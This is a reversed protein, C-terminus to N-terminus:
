LVFSNEPIPNIWNRSFTFWFAVAGQSPPAGAHKPSDLCSSSGTSQSAVYSFFCLYAGTVNRFVKLLRKKLWDPVRSFFCCCAIDPIANQSTCICVWRSYWVLVLMELNSCPDFVSADTWDSTMKAKKKVSCRTGWISSTRILDAMTGWM